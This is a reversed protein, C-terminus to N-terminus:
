NVRIPKPTKILWYFTLVDWSSARGNRRAENKKSEPRVGSTPIQKEKTEKATFRKQRGASRMFNEEDTFDSPAYLKEHHAIVLYAFVVLVIIPFIVLFWVLPILLNPNNTDVKATVYGAIGYILVQFLAIIGLPNRALKIATEGFDKNFKNFITAM